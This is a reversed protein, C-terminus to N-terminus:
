FRFYLFPNYSQSVLLATAIGLVVCCFLAQLVPAAKTNEVKKYLKAMLPTSALAAVLLMPLYSLTLAGADPTIVAGGFSFMSQFFAGMEGLDSFYFLM